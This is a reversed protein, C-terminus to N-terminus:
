IQFPVTNSNFRGVPGFFELPYNSYFDSAKIIVAVCASDPIVVCRKSQKLPPLAGGTYLLSEEGLNKWFLRQTQNGCAILLKRETEPVSILREDSPWKELLFPWKLPFSDLAQEFSKHRCDMIQFGKHALYEIAKEFLEVQYNGEPVFVPVQRAPGSLNRGTGMELAVEFFEEFDTM